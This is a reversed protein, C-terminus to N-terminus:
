LAGPSCPWFASVIRSSMSREEQSFPHVGWYCDGVTHSQAAAPSLPKCQSIGANELILEAGAEPQLVEM